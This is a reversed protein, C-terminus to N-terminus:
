VSEILEDAHIIVARGTYGDMMDDKAIKNEVVVLNVREPDWVNLVLGGDGEIKEKIKDEVTRDTIGFIFVVKRSSIDFSTLSSTSEAVRIQEEFFSGPKDEKMKKLELTSKEGDPKSNSQADSITRKMQLPHQNTLRSQYLQQSASASSSSPLHNNFPYNTKSHNHSPQHRKFYYLFTKVHQAPLAKRIIRETKYWDFGPTAQGFRPLHVSAGSMKAARGAKVLGVELDSFQISGLSGDRHRKQAVILCVHIEGGSKVKVTHPMLHASGLQLNKVECSTIYYNEILPDMKSLVAFVGKAPWNGSDDVVHIVIGTENNAVFPETISGNKLIFYTSDDNAASYGDSENDDNDSVNDQISSTEPLDDSLAYSEYGMKVWSERLKTEKKEKAAAIRQAQQIRRNEMFSDVGETEVSGIMENKLQLFAEEDKKYDTGEYLYISAAEGIDVNEADVTVGVVTDKLFQKVLAGAKASMDDVTNAALLGAMGFRLISIINKPTKLDDTQALNESTSATVKDSLSQKALARKYIVEEVSGETLLRIVRVQKTQGIRHARAAAQLDMMPNFDSDVFIVTDASTLNLGVGGARTSLLFVFYDNTTSFNTVAANREEGRISGDLRVHTYSKYTLYDQLIDLMYTMQSFIRHGNKHLDGLLCDLVEMKGSAHFLHDGAEFPEPEIGNNMLGTKKGSEFASMDKTLISKYLTKQVKSMAVLRTYLVTEKMPPLTLVIEKVRRLMFPKILENLKKLSADNNAAGKVSGYLRTLVFNDKNAGFVSPCAFSLLSELENLDNQVPTGTLLLKFPSPSLQLLSKHLISSRNKLRHAEDVVLIQWKFQQLYEIDNCVTEYTVLLVDFQVENEFQQKLEAREEKTGHYKVVNLISPGAAFKAFEDKWNQLLSLPVVILFKARASQSMRHKQYLLFAITQITKGLGMEDTRLEIDSGLLGSLNLDASTSNALIRATALEVRAAFAGEDFGGLQNDPSDSESNTSQEAGSESENFDDDIEDVKPM